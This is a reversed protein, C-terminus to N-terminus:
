LAVPLEGPSMSPKVLVIEQRLLGGTIVPATGTGRRRGCSERGFVWPQYM